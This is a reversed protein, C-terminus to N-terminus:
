ILSKVTRSSGYCVSIFCSGHVPNDNTLRGLYCPVNPGRQGLTSGISDVNPWRQALSTQQRPYSLSSICLLVQVVRRQRKARKTGMMRASTRARHISPLEQNNDGNIDRWRCFDIRTYVFWLHIRIIAKQGLSRSTQFIRTCWFM